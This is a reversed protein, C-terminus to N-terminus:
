RNLFQVYEKFLNLPSLVFLMCSHCINISGSRIMSSKLNSELESYNLHVFDDNRFTATEKVPKPLSSKTGPKPCFIAQDRKQNQLM